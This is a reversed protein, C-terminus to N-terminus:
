ERTLTDAVGLPSECILNAGAAILEERSGYGYTVGVAIVHNALAARIDHARDGVFVVKSADLWSSELIHRVLVGKDDFRGDDGTGFVGTFFGDIAFHRVIKEAFRQRKSTCVFLSAGAHVRALM